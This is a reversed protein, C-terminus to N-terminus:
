RVRNSAVHGSHVSHLTHFKYCHLRVRMPPCNITNSNIAREIRKWNFSMLRPQDYRDATVISADFCFFLSLSVSVSLFLSLFFVCDCNIKRIMLNESALTSRGFVITISFVNFSAFFCCRFNLFCCYFRFLWFSVFRFITCFLLISFSPLSFFFIFLM